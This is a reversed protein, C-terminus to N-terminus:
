IGFAASKAAMTFIYRAAKGIKAFSTASAREGM